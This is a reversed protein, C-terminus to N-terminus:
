AELEVQCAHLRAALDDSNMARGVFILLTGDEFIQLAEDEDEWPIDEDDFAGRVAAEMEEDVARAEEDSFEDVQVVTGIVSVEATVADPFRVRGKVRLIESPLTGLLAQFRERDLRANTNWTFTSFGGTDAGGTPVVTRVAAPTATGDDGGFARLALAVLDDLSMQRMQELRLVTALDNLGHAFGEVSLAEEPAMGITNALVVITAAEITGVLAQVTDADGDRFDPWFRAADLVTIMAVLSLDGDDVYPGISEFFAHPDVQGPIDIVIFECADQDLLYALADDLSPSDGAVTDVNADPVMARLAQDVAKRNAAERGVVLFFPIPDSGPDFM